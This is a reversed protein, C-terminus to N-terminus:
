LGVFIPRDSTGSDASLGRGRTEPGVREGSIASTVGTLVSLNDARPLAM